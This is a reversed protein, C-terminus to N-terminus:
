NTAKQTKPAKPKPKDICNQAIAIVALTRFYKDDIARANSLSMDFDDKSLTKFTSEMDYGPMSFSAVFSFNKGVVQRRVNNSLIDPDELRNIVTVADGLETLAFNHNVKEYLNALGLHIRAKAISNEARRAIKGVDNLTQYVSSAENLDKLQAEAIDFILIARHDLEPVKAAFKQADELRKDKIARKARLFWFYNTTGPRSGEDKIKDLWGEIKAFQEETKSEPGWLLLQVIMWDTLKGESDAKELQKLREDFGLGIGQNYKEGDAMNKRMEETLMSSARSKAESLQQISQPFREIIIPELEQLATLMYVPEPRWYGEAPKDLNAPDSAYSIINRLFTSIFTQQLPLNTELGSPVSAGYSFQDVGFIRPNSFPYASLFLLRRPTESSYNALLEKYLSDAFKRDNAAVSYLGFYWHADLPHKMARRFLYWSLDPNTKVSEQAISMIAEIERRKDLEDRETASKEYEKLLQETLKKAWEPDKKAIARIVEFRYDPTQIIFGKENKREFGKETFNDTAVKFADTLYTRATPQDFKWLFDASRTLIRIRKNILVVSRSESVQQDVLFKAFESSCVELEPPKEAKPEPKPEQAFGYAGTLMLVAMAAFSLQRNMM